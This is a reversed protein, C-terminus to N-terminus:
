LKYHGSLSLMLNLAPDSKMSERSKVWSSFSRFRSTLITGCTVWSSYSNRSATSSTVSFVNVSKEIEWSIMLLKKAIPSLYKHFRTFKSWNTTKICAQIILKGFSACTKKFVNFVSARKSNKGVSSIKDHSSRTHSWASISGHAQSLFELEPLRTDFMPIISIKPSKPRITSTRTRIAEM